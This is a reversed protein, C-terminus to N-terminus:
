NAVSAKSSLPHMPMDDSAFNMFLGWRRTEASVQPALYSHTKVNLGMPGHYSEFSM